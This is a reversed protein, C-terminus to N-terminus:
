LRQLTRTKHPLELVAPDLRAGFSDSAKKAALKAEGLDESKLYRSALKFCHDRASDLDPYVIDLEKKIIGVGFYYNNIGENIGRGFYANNIEATCYPRMLLATQLYQVALQYASKIAEIIDSRSSAKKEYYRAIALHHRYLLIYAPAGHHILKKVRSSIEAVHAKAIQEDTIEDLKKLDYINLLSVAHFSNYKEAISLFKLETQDSDSHNAQSLYYLGAILDFSHFGQQLQFSKFEDVLPLKSLKDSNTAIEDWFEVLDPHYYCKQIIPAADKHFEILRSLHDEISRIRNIIDQESHQFLGPSSTRKNKKIAVM